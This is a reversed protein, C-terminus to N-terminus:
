VGRQGAVCAHRPKLWTLVSWRPFRIALPQPSLFCEGVSALSHQGSTGKLDCAYAFSGTLSPREASRGFNPSPQDIQHATCPTKTGLRSGGLSPRDLPRREDRIPTAIKHDCPCTEPLSIKPHGIALRGARRPGWREGTMRRARTCTGRGSRYPAGVGRRWPRCRTTRKALRLRRRGYSRNSTLLTRARSVCSSGQQVQSSSARQSMLAAMAIPM